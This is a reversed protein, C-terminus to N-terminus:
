IKSINSGTGAGGGEEDSWYLWWLLFDIEIKATGLISAEPIKYERHSRYAMRHMYFVNFASLAM